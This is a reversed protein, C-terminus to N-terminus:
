YHVRGHKLWKLDLGNDLWELELKLELTTNTVYLYLFHLSIFLTLAQLSHEVNLITFYPSLYFLFLFLTTQVTFLIFIILNWTTKTIEIHRHTHMFKVAHTVQDPVVTSNDTNVTRTAQPFFSQRLKETKAAHCCLHKGSRLVQSLRNNLHHSDKM